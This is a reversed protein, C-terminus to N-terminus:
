GFSESEYGATTIVTKKLGEIKVVIDDRLFSRTVPLQNNLRAIYRSGRGAFM